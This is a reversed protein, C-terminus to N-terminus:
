DLMSNFSETLFGIEDNSTKVSRVSFDKRESVTKATDALRLLPQSIQRQFLNSLFLGLAGSAILVIMLVVGDAELHRGLSLNARIFLTGVRKRDNMVPHYLALYNAHAQVEKLQPSKPLLSAPLNTPCTAFLSGDAGYLAASTIKPEVKLDSLIQTALKQDDFILIAASNATIINAISELSRVTNKRYSQVEYYFLIACTFLLVLVSTLFIIGVM